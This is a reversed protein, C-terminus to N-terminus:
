RRDSIWFSGAKVSDIGLKRLVALLEEFAVVPASGFDVSFAWQEGRQGPPTVSHIVGCLGDKDPSRKDELDLWSLIWSAFEPSDPPFSKTIFDVSNWVFPHVTISVGASSLFTQPEFHLPRDINVETLNPPSVAGSALDMRYHRFHRPTNPRNLDLIVELASPTYRSRYDALAKRFTELYQERGVSLLGHFDLPSKQFLTRLQEIM